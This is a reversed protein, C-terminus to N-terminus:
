VLRFEERQERNKKLAEYIKCSKFDDIPGHLEDRVISHGLKGIKVEYESEGTRVKLIEREKM